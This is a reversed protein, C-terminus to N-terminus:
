TDDRFDKSKSAVLGRALADPLYKCIGAVLQNMRGTIIRRKGLEAAEITREAVDESSLWLYKPLQSVKSRMGNVDHFESYTFGPCVATVTVGKPEMELALNESFRILFVKSPGYLTHGASAPVLGALSAINIIKGKGRKEMAPLFLYTLECVATILVQLFEAHTKWDSSLYRGPIGYGANNVLTEVLLGHEQTHALIARAAGVNSLDAAFYRSPAFNSLEACIEKLRDERRAVLLTAKGRKAYARAIALGIGSSAGTILTYANSSM